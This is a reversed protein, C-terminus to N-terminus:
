QGGFLNLPTKPTSATTSTEEVETTAEVEVPAEPAAEAKTEVPNTQPTRHITQSPVAVHPITELTSLTIEARCPEDAKRTTTIAIGEVNRSIGMTKVYNKLAVEIDSYTLTIQM